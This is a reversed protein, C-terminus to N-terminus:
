PVVRKRELSVSRLPWGDASAASTMAKISASLISFAIRAPKSQPARVALMTAASQGSRTCPWPRRSRSDSRCGPPRCSAAQRRAGLELPPVLVVEGGFAAAGAVVFVPAIERLEDPLDRRRLPLEVIGREVAARRREVVRVMDGDHDVVIAPPQAQRLALRLVVREFFRSASRGTMVTGVIVRSPSASHRAVDPDSRRRRLLEGALVRVPVERAADAVVQRLFRGCAKACATMSTAASSIPSTLWRAIQRSPAFAM